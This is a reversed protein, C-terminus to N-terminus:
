KLLSTKEGVANNIQVGNIQTTVLTDFNLVINEPAKFNNVVINKKQKYLSDILKGSLVAIDKASVVGESHLTGGTFDKLVQGYINQVYYSNKM